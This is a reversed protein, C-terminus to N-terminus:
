LYGQLVQIVKPIRQTIGSTDAEEMCSTQWGFTRDVKELHTFLANYIEFTKHITPGTTTSLILTLAYFPYTLEQLYEIQRWEQETPLFARIQTWEESFKFIIKRLVLSRQLM